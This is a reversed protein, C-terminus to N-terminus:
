AGAESAAEAESTRRAELLMTRTVLAPAARGSFAWLKRLTWACAALLIGITTLLLAIGFILRGAAARLLLAVMGLVFYLTIAFVVFQIGIAATKVNRM